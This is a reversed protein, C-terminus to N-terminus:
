HALPAEDQPKPPPLQGDQYELHVLYFVHFRVVGKRFIPSLHEPTEVHLDLSDTIANAVKDAPMDLVLQLDGSHGSPIVCGKKALVQEVQLLYRMDLNRWLPGRTPAMLAQLVVGSCTAAAIIYPLAPHCIFACLYSVLGVGLAIPGLPGYQSLRHFFRRLLHM